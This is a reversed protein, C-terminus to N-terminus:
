LYEGSPSKTQKLDKGRMRVEINLFKSYAYSQM